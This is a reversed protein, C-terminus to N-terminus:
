PVWDLVVEVGAEFYLTLTAAQGDPTRQLRTVLARTQEQPLRLTLYPRGLRPDRTVAWTGSASLDPGVVHLEGSADLTLDTALNFVTAGGPGRRRQRWHGFLWADPCTQLNIDFLLPAPM